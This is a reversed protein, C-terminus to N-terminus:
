HYPSWRSRCLRLCEKGVRREESRAAGCVGSLRGGSGQGGRRSSREERRSSLARGWCSGWCRWWSYEQSERSRRGALSPREGGLQRCQPEAPCRGRGGSHQLESEGDPPVPLSASGRAPVAARLRRVSCGCGVTVWTAGDGGVGEEARGPFPSSHGLIATADDPINLLM